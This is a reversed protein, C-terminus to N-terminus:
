SLPIKFCSVLKLSYRIKLKDIFYNLVFESRLPATCAAIQLTLSIENISKQHDDTNQFSEQLLIDVQKKSLIKPCLPIAM